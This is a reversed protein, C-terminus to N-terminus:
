RQEKPLLNRKRSIKRSIKYFEIKNVFSKLNCESSAIINKNEGIKYEYFFVRPLCEEIGSQLNSFRDNNIINRIKKTYKKGVFFTTDYIVEGHTNYCGDGFKFSVKINESKLEEFRFIVQYKYRLLCIRIYDNPKDYMVDEKFFKKLTRSTITYEISDAYDLFSEGPNNVFLRNIDFIISDKEIITKKDWTRFCYQNNNIDFDYIQRLFNYEISDIQALGPYTFLILFIITKLKM